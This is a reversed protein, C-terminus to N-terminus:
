YEGPKSLLPSSVHSLQNFRGELITWHFKMLVKLSRRMLYLRKMAKEMQYNCFRTGRDSIFAKPIGFRAFQRKLFNVVNRVDSTPFAQAKKLYKTGQLSIELKNAHMAFKSWGAHMASSIHGTSVPKLSKEQLLPSVM